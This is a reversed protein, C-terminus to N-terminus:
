FCDGSPQLSFGLEDFLTSAECCDLICTLTTGGRLKASVARTLDADGVVGATEWDVPFLEGRGGHGCFHLLLCGRSDGRHPWSPSPTEDAALLWNLQKLINSRTPKKEGDEYDALLRIGSEPWKLDSVLWGRMDLVDNWSGELRWESSNSYCIGILLAKPQCCCDEASPLAKRIFGQENSSSCDLTSRVTLVVSPFGVSAAVKRMGALLETFTMQESSDREQRHWGGRLVALLAQTCLGGKPRADIFHESKTENPATHEETDPEQSTSQGPVHASLVFIVRSEHSTVLTESAASVPSSCCIFSTGATSTVAALLRQM